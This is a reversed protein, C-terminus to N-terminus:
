YNSASSAVGSSAPAQSSPQGAAGTLAKILQNRPDSAAGFPHDAYETNFQKRADQQSNLAAELRNRQMHTDIGELISAAGNGIGAGLGYSHGGALQKRMAESADLQGQIGQQQEQAGQLVLMAQALQPNAQLRAAMDQTGGLQQSPNPMMSTVSSM